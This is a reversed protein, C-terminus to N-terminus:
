TGFPCENASVTGRTLPLENYILPKHKQQDKMVIRIKTAFFSFQWKNAVLKEIKRCDKVIAVSKGDPLLYLPGASNGSCTVALTQNAHERGRAFQFASM